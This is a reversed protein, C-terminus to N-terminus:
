IFLLLSLLKSHFLLSSEGKLHSFLSSWPFFTAIKVKKLCVLLSSVTELLFTFFQVAEFSLPLSVLKSHYFLLSIVKSFTFIYGARCDIIFFYCVEPNPFLSFTSLQVTKFSFTTFAFIKFSFTALNVIEIFLPLLPLKSNFLLSNLHNSLQKELYVKQM